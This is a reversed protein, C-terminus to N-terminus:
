LLSTLDKLFKKKMREGFPEVVLLEHGDCLEKERPVIQSHIDETKYGTFNRYKALDKVFADYNMQNLESSDFSLVDSESTWFYYKHKGKKGDKYLSAMGLYKTEMKNEEM